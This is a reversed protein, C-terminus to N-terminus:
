VTRTAVAPPVAAARRRHYGPRVAIQLAVLLTSTEHRMLASLIPRIAMSPNGNIANEFGPRPDDHLEALSSLTRSDRQNIHLGAPFRQESKQPIPNNAMIHYVTLMSISVGIGVAIAAVMLATLMPNRRMSRLANSINYAFM